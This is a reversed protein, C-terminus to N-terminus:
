GKVAGSVVGQVFAKQMFIFLIIVPTSVLLAASFVLDWRNFKNSVFTYLRYVMTFMRADTLTIMAVILDNWISQGRIIIVTGTITKLLPMYITVYTKFIGCGDVIAAESLEKPISRMFGTYLFVVISMSTAVFIMCTGFYSNLLNLKKLLIVIPIMISQFPITIVLITILYMTKLVKTDVVAVAFGMLSGFVIMITLSIVLVIINNMIAQPYNMLDFANKIGDLTLTSFNIQLPRFMIEERPKFANIIAIVLPVATLASYVLLFITTLLHKDKIKNKNKAM